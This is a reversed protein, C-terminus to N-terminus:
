RRRASRSSGRPSAHGAASAIGHAVLRWGFTVLALFGLEVVTFVSYADRNTFGWRLVGGILVAVVLTGALRLWSREVRTYLRTVLAGVLWGVALPWLVTLFWDVGRDIHHQDRGLAVFVALCLGDFAPALRRLRLPPM